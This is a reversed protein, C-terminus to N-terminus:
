RRTSRPRSAPDVASSLLEAAPAGMFALLRVADTTSGGFAAAVAEAEVGKLVARHIQIPQWRTLWKRLASMCALEALEDHATGNMPWALRDAWLRALDFPSVAEAEDFTLAKRGDATAPHGENIKITM